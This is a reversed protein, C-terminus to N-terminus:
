NRDYRRDRRDRDHHDDRRERERRAEQEGWASVLFMRVLRLREGRLARYTREWAEIERESARRQLVDAYMGSIFEHPRCHHRDFYEKSAIVQVKVDGLVLLGERVQREWDEVEVRRAERKLFQTYFSSIKRELARDQALVPAAMTLLVVALTLKTVVKM